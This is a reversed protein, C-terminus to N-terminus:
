EGAIQAVEDIVVAAVVVVVIVVEIPAQTIMLRILAIVLISSKLLSRGQGNRSRMKQGNSM